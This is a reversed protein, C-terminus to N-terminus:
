SSKSANPCRPAIHDGACQSCHHKRVCKWWDCGKVTNWKNCVEDSIDPKRDERRTSVGATKITDNTLCQAFLQLDVDCWVRPDTSPQHKRFHAVFYAIVAPWHHHKTWWAIQRIYLGIACGFGLRDIDYLDRIALYVSLANVLTAYDPFAKEYSLMSENVISAKGTNSDFHMGTAMGFNAQGKPRQETPILKIFHAIDLTCSVVNALTSADVWPMYSQMADTPTMGNLTSIPSPQIMQGPGLGRLENLVTQLEDFREKVEDLSNMMARQSLEVATLRGHDEVNQEVSMERSLTGASEPLPPVSTVAQHPQPLLLQTAARVAATARPRRPKAITVSQTQHNHKPPM